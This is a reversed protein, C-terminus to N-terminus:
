PEGPPRRQLDRRLETLEQLVRDLKRDLDSRPQPPVEADLLRGELQRLRDEAADLQREITGREIASRQGLQRLQEQVMGLAQRQKVLEDSRKEEARKWHQDEQELEERLATLEDKVKPNKRVELRLERIREDLAKMDARERERELAQQRELRRINEEQAAVESSVGEKLREDGMKLLTEELDRVRAQLEAHKAELEKRRDRTRAAAADPEAARPQPPQAPEDAPAALRAEAPPETARDAGRARYALAGAGGGLVGAALVILVALKLKTAAMAKVMRETLEVVPAPITGAGAGAVLVLAARTTATVLRAPVAAANAGEAGLGTLAASLGLGRRELRGRLLDRAHALRSLVTGKPCGLLRAAEANTKGELYCLVFPLRCREPLRRVEEDLVSRFERGAAEDPVGAPARAPAGEEVQRRRARDGRARVAVRRAVGYLWSGVSPRKRISAASRVLVLFTAKFADEADQPHHLIRRCVGLVTPGHRRVLVAFAPEERRALFRGLLEGDTLGAAWVPEAAHRLFDVLAAVQRNSM